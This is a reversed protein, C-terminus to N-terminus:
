RRAATVHSTGDLDNTVLYQLTCGARRGDGWVSKIRHELEERM